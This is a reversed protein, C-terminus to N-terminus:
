NGKPRPPPAVELVRPRAAEPVLSRVEAWLMEWEPREAESLASKPSGPRVGALDADRLWHALVGVVRKREAANSSSVQKKRADPVDRLWALAQRRCVGQEATPVPNKGQGARGDRRPVRRQVPLDPGCQM